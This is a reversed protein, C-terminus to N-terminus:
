ISWQLPLPLLLRKKYSKSKTFVFNSVYLVKGHGAILM